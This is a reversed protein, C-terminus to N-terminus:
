GEQPTHTFFFVLATCLEKGAGEGEASCCLSAAFPCVKDRPDREEEEGVWGGLFLWTWGSPGKQQVLLGARGQKSAPGLPAPLSSAAATGESLHAGGPLLVSPLQEWMQAFSALEAQIVALAWVPGRQRRRLPVQRAGEQLLRESAGSDPRLGTGMAEGALGAPPLLPPLLGLALAPPGQASGSPLRADQYNGPPSQDGKRSSDQVLGKGQRAKSKREPFWDQSQAVM